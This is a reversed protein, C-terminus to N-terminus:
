NEKGFFFSYGPIFFDFGHGQVYIEIKYGSL